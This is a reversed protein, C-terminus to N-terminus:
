TYVILFYSLLGLGVNTLDSVLIYISGLHLPFIHFLSPLEQFILNGQQPAFCWHFGFLFSPM